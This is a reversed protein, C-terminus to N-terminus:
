IVRGKGEKGGEEPFRWGGQTRNTNQSENVRGRESDEPTDLGSRLLESKNENTLKIIKILM